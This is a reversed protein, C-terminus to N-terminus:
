EEIYYEVPNYKEIKAYVMEYIDEDILFKAHGNFHLHCPITQTLNNKLRSGNITFNANFWEKKHDYYELYNKSEADPFYEEGIETFFVCFIECNTDLAIKDTNKFYRQTWLYQNSEPFKDLDFNNDELLEKIDKIVGIFGGCNLYKYLNTSNNTNPYHNAMNPDPWCGLEASFIIKKNFKFYKSLIEEETATFVADTGDTFFIIENEDINEDSLYDLLLYDKVRRSRFDNNAVLTILELGNVFCSLKLLHFNKDNVDNIVTIIKM